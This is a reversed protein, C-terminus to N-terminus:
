FGNEHYLEKIEADQLARRYVRVDDLDGKFFNGFDGTGMKFSADWSLNFDRAADVTLESLLDGDQYLKMCKEERNVIATVFHWADDNIPLYLPKSLAIEERDHSISFIVYPDKGSGVSIRFGAYNQIGKELITMYDGEKNALMIWVAISFSTSADFDLDSPYRLRADIYSKGDFHYAKNEQGFRDMTLTCGHAEGGNEKGSADGPYGNFPYWAVLNKQLTVPRDQLCRVSAGCYIDIPSYLDNYLYNLGFLSPGHFIESTWYATFKDKDAFGYGDLMDEIHTFIGAGRGSFDSENTADTNPSIWHEFGSEKLKGAAM